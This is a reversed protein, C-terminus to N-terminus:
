GALEAHKKLQRRVTNLNHKAALYTAASDEPSRSQKEAARKLEKRGRAVLKKRAKEDMTLLAIWSTGKPALAANVALAGGAIVLLWVLVSRKGTRTKGHWGGHVDGEGPEPTYLNGATFEASRRRSLQARDTLQAFQAEVPKPHRRHQRVLAKGPASVVVEDQPKGAARVIDMAVQEPSYVPPMALLERGTYNAAHSFFPTDITPPLVTVVHVHRQKQLALEQRLSGGLSIVAAKSMGYAASYPQPIEGLISAVNVLVGRGQDSMVSLASRAGHVYGMVNVDLVRKFDELPITDVTAYVAVSAANVWVDIRGFEEVADAALSDVEAANTVDTAVVIADGGRARCEEAVRELADARRSALVLRAGKKAFLLATARGIGSSAGTIVVVPHKNPM